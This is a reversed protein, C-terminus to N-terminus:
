SADELGGILTALGYGSIIAVLLSSFLFSGDLVGALGVVIVVPWGARVYLSLASLAAIEIPLSGVGVISVLGENLLVTFLTIVALTFLLETGDVESRDFAFVTLILVGIYGVAPHAFAHLWFLDLVPIFSDVLMSTILMAMAIGTGLYLKRTTIM